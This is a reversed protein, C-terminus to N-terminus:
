FTIKDIFSINRDIYRLGTSFNFNQYNFVECPNFVIISSHGPYINVDGVHLTHM